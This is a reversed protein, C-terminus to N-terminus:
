LLKRERLRHLVQAPTINSLTVPMFKEPASDASVIINEAQGIAHNRRWNTPGFFAYVPIGSCSLVHMPGSDNTVAFRAYRGLEALMNISFMNGADIGVQGSYRRITERENDAGVWVITCGSDKLALALELFYPWRKEQHGPSTGPHLIVFPRDLLGNYKLWSGVFNKDEDAVPLIPLEYAAAIGSSRLVEIMRDYIHCQGTYKDGPHLNYPFHTHNGVREPIGSLACLLASRDSSQLDYVRVFDGKRIWAITKLNDRLGKRGFAVVNLGRWSNFIELYAPATLLWVDDHAHYKQIQRILATAMVVDGLAGLKIILIKAVTDGARRLFGTRVQDYFM